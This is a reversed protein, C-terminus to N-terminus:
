LLPQFLCPQFWSPSICCTPRFGLDYPAYGTNSMYSGTAVYMGSIEDLELYNQITVTSGDVLNIIWNGKDDVTSRDTDQNIFVNDSVSSNVVLVSGTFDPAVEIINSGTGADVYVDGQGQVVIHDDGGESMIRDDGGGTEVYDDEVDGYFTDDESYLTTYQFSTATLEIIKTDTFGASDSVTIEVQYIGDDDKTPSGSLIGTEADLNLWAPLNNATFTYSDNLDEDSIKILYSNQSNAKFHVSQNEDIYVPEDLNHVELNFVESMSVTGAEDEVAFAIKYFGVENDDAIGTLLGTKPDLSLWNLDDNSIISYNHRDGVDEDDVSIQFSLNQEETIHLNGDSIFNIIIDPPDNVNNVTLNFTKQDTAGKSDTVEITVSHNGVDDNTPTGSILGDSSVTMWNPKELAEYSLTESAVDFDVDTATM